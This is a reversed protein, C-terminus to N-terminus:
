IFLYFLIFYKKNSFFYVLLMNTFIALHSGITRLNILFSMTFVLIKQSIIKHFSFIVPILFPWFSGIAVLASIPRKTWKIPQTKENPVLHPEDYNM